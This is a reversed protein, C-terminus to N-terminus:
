LQIFDKPPFDVQFLFFFSHLFVDAQLVVVAEFPIYQAQRPPHKDM